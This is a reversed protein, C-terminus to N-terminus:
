KERGDTKVGKRLPYHGEKWDERLLFHKLDPHGVFNIGLL